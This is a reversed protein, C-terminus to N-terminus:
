LGDRGRSRESRYRERYRRRQERVREGDSFRQYRDEGVLSGFIRGVKYAVDSSSGGTFHVYVHFVGWVAVVMVLLAGLVSLLAPMVQTTILGTVATVVTDLPAPTPM